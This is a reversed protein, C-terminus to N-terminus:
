KVRTQKITNRTSNEKEWRYNDYKAILYISLGLIVSFTMGSIAIINGIEIHFHFLSMSLGFTLIPIGMWPGWFMGLFTLFMGLIVYWSDYFWNM